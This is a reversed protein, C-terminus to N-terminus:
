RWLFYSSLLWPPWHHREWSFLGHAAQYPTELVELTNLTPTAGIFCPWPPTNTSRFSTEWKYIRRHSISSLAWHTVRCLSWIEPISVFEWNLEGWSQKKNLVNFHGCMNWGKAVLCLFDSTLSAQSSMWWVHISTLTTPIGAAPDEPERYALTKSSLFIPALDFFVCKDQGWTHDNKISEAM